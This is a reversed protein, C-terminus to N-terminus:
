RRQRRDRRQRSAVRSHARTLVLRIARTSAWAERSSGVQHRLSLSDANRGHRGPRHTSSMIVEATFGSPTSSWFRAVASLTYTERILEATGRRRNPLRARREQRGVCAPRPISSCTTDRAEQWLSTTHDRRPASGRSPSDWLPRRRSRSQTVASPSRSRSIRQQSSRAPGGQPGRDHCTAHAAPSHQRRRSRLPSGDGQRDRLSATRRRRSCSSMAPGAEFDRQSETPRNASLVRM